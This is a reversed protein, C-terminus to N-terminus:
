APACSLLVIKVAADMCVVQLLREAGVEGDLVQGGGVQMGVDLPPRLRLAPAAFPEAWGRDLLLDGAQGADPRPGDAQAM